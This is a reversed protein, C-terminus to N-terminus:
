KPSSPPAPAAPAPTAPEPHKKRDELAKSYAAMIMLGPPFTKEGASRTLRDLTTIQGSALDKRLDVLTNNLVVVAYEAIKWEKPTRPLYQSLYPINTPLKFYWLGSQEDRKMQLGIPPLIPEDDWRLSVSDDTLYETTLHTEGETLLQYPDAFLKEFLAMVAAQQKDQQQFDPPGRRRGQNAIQGLVEGAKGSEVSKQALEKLKAVEDPLSKDVQVALKQLNGLLVGFKQLFATMQPSEPYILKNLERARNKEVLKRATKITAEPTSQDWDDSCGTLLMVCLATALAALVGLNGLRCPRM